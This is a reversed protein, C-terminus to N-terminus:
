NQRLLTLQGAEKMGDARILVWQYTGEPADNGNDYRGNWVLEFEADTATEDQFVITGSASAQRISIRIGITSNLVLNGSANRIVSQYTFQQPSQAICFSSICLVGLLILNKM